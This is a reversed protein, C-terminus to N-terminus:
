RTPVGIARIMWNRDNLPGEYIAKTDMDVFYSRQYIPPTIDVGLWLIHDPPVSNPFVAVYFDGSIPINPIPMLVWDWKGPQLMNSYAYEQHFLQERNDNWVEVAFRSSTGDYRGSFRVWRLTWPISPPSFRVAAGGPSYVSWGQDGVNDDYILEQSGVFPDGYRALFPLYIRQLRPPPVSTPSATPIVPSTPTPTATPSGTPVPLSQTPTVTSSPTRTPTATVTPSATTTPTNTATATSSSTATPSPTATETPTPPESVILPISQRDNDPNIDGPISARAEVTYSGPMGPIWSKHVEAEMGPFLATISWNALENGISLIINVRPEPVAGLNKVVIGIDLPQGAVVTDPRAFLDIIAVDHAVPTAGPETTPTVTPTWTLTATPMLTATPTSTAVPTTIPTATATGAPTVTFTPSSTPTPRPKVEVNVTLSNNDVNDEGPIRPIIAALPYIGPDPPVWDPLLTVTYTTGASLRDLHALFRPDGFLYGHVELNTEDVLGQNKVVVQIGTASGAIPPSPATFVNLIAVDHIVPTATPTPSPTSTLTPTPLTGTPTVTDGKPKVYVTITRQNDSLDIEGPVPGVSVTISHSGSAKPIWTPPPLPLAWSGPWLLTFSGTVLVQGDVSVRYLVNQESYNGNNYVVFIISTPQDVKPNAPDTVLQSIGVNHKGPPTPAPTNTSTPSPTSISTNTPAPTSTATDTAIATSTAISFPTWITDLGLDPWPTGMSSVQATETVEREGTEQLLPESSALLASSASGARPAVVPPVFMGVMLSVVLYTVGVLPPVLSKM